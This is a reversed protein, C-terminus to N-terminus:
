PQLVFRQFDRRSKLTSSSAVFARPAHDIFHGIVRACDDAYPATWLVHEEWAVQAASSIKAYPGLSGAYFHDAYKRTAQKAKEADIGFRRELRGPLWSLFPVTSLDSGIPSKEFSSSVANRLRYQPRNWGADLWDGPNDGLGLRYEDSLFETSQEFTTRLVKTETENAGMEIRHHLFKGFIQSCLVRYKCTDLILEHWAWDAIQPLILFQDPNARKADLFATLYDVALQADSRSIQYKEYVRARVDHLELDSWSRGLRM